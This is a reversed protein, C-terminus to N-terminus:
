LKGKKQEAVIEDYTRPEVKFTWFLWTIIGAMAMCPLVVGAVLIWSDAPTM